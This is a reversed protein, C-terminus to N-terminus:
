EFSIMQLDKHETEYIKLMEKIIDNYEKQQNEDEFKFKLRGAGDGDVGVQFYECTHGLDGCLEIWALMNIFEEKNYDDAIIEIKM